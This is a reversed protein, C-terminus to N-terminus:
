RVTVTVTNSVFTRRPSLLVRYATVQYTGPKCDGDRYNLDELKYIGAQITQGPKMTSDGYAFATRTWNSILIRGSPRVANGAADRVAFDTM